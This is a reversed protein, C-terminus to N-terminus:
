VGTIQCTSEEPTPRIVVAGSVAVPRERVRGVALIAAQPANIIAQFQDVGFMGLNTLTFTGGELDALSPKGARAREVLEASKV